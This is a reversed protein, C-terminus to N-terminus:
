PVLRNNYLNMFYAICCKPDGFYAGRKRIFEDYITNYVILVLNM